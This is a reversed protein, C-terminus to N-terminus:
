RHTGRASECFQASLEIYRLSTRRAPTRSYTQEQTKERGRGVSVPARCECVAGGEDELTARSTSLNDIDEERDENYTLHERARM